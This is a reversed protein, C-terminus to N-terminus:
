WVACTSERRDRRATVRGEDEPAFSPLRPRLAYERGDDAVPGLSARNALVAPARTPGVAVDRFAASPLDREWCARRRGCLATSLLRPSAVSGMRVAPSGAESALLALPAPPNPCPAAGATECAASDLRAPALVSLVRLVCAASDGFGLM